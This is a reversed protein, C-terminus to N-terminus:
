GPGDGSKAREKGHARPEIKPLFALVVLVIIATVIATVLQGLGATM